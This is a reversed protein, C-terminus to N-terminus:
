FFCSWWIIYINFLYLFYMAMCIVCWVDLVPWGRAGVAVITNEKEWVRGKWRRRGFDGVTSMAAHKGLKMGAMEFDPRLTQPLALLFPAFITYTSSL